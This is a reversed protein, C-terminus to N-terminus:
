TVKGGRDVETHGTVHPPPGRITGGLLPIRKFTAGKLLHYVVEFVGSGNMEKKPPSITLAVGRADAARKESAAM